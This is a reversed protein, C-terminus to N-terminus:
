LIVLTLQSVKMSIWFAMMTTTSIMIDAVGDGDTDQISRFDVDSTDNDVNQLTAPVLTGDADAFTVDTPLIGNTQAEVSDLIGDGDSDTSIYDPTGNNDDDNLAAFNGGFVGETGTVATADEFHDLVGDNDTDGADGGTTIM